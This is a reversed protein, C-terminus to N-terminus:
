ILLTRCTTSASRGLLLRENSNVPLDTNPLRTLSRWGRGHAQLSISGEPGEFCTRHAFATLYPQHHM